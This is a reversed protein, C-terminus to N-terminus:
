FGFCGQASGAGSYKQIYGKVSVKRATHDSHTYRVRRNAIMWYLVYDGDARVKKENAKRVDLAPVATVGTEKAAVQCKEWERYLRGDFGL